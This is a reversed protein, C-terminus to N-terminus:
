VFNSLTSKHKKREERTKKNFLFVRKPLRIVKGLIHMTVNVPNGGSYKKKIWGLIKGILVKAYLKKNGCNRFIDRCVKFHMSCPLKFFHLCATKWFHLRIESYDLQVDFYDKAFQELQQTWHYMVFYMNQRKTTAFYSTGSSRVIERAALYDNFCRYNGHLSLFLSMKRDGVIPLADYAEIIKPDYDYFLNRYMIGSTHKPLLWNEAEHYTYVDGKFYTSDFPNKILNNKEDVTYWNYGVAIYDENNELFDVMRQMRDCTLWYDDGELTTRYKGRCSERINLYNQKMGVNKEYFIPKFLDPYKECYRSIIERTKDSSGDEGIIIEYDFNVEQMLVSDLARAITREHNYATITVSVLPRPVGPLHKQPLDYENYVKM